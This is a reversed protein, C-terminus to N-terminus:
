NQWNRLSFIAYKANFNTNFLFWDPQNVVQKLTVSAGGNSPLAEEVRINWLPMLKFSTTPVFIPLAVETYLPFFM